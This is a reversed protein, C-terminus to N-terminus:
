AEQYTGWRQKSSLCPEWLWMSGWSPMGPPQAMMRGHPGGCSCEVLATDWAAHLNM